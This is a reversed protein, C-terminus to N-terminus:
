FTSVPDTQLTRASGAAALTPVTATRSNARGRAPTPRRVANRAASAAASEDTAM